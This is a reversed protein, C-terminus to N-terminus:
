RLTNEVLAAHARRLRESLSQDSIDLTEALEVTTTSRPIDYYGSDLAAVLTDRQSETLGHASTGDPDPQYLSTVDLDIGVERCRDNFTSLASQDPFRAEFEWTDRDGSAQLLSIGGDVESLTRTVGDPVEDWTIRYLRRDDFEDVVTVDSAGESRLADEFRRYEADTAHVWVYPLAGDSLPVVRDLEATADGAPLARGFPIDGGSTTFTLIVSM